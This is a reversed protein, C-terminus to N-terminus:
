ATGESRLLRFIVISILISIIGVTLNMAAAYGWRMDGQLFAVEYSYRGVLRGAGEPGADTIGFFVLSEETAGLVGAGLVFIVAFTPRMLPVSITILRRWWGAGDLAAADYLEPNISYLGVLMLLVSTGGAMWVAVLALVPVSWQASQILDPTNGLKLVEHLFYDLYGFEPSLLQKWILVAVAIPLVVPLYVIARYVSAERNGHIETILVAVLFALAFSVTIYIAMYLLSRQLSEWFMRDHVMERWHDIGNFPAQGPVLYRYDTFAMTVGRLLPYANFVLFLLLAPGVFLYGALAEGSTRRNVRRLIRGRPETRSGAATEVTSMDMARSSGGGRTM